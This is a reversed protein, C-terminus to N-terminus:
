VLQVLDNRKKWLQPFSVNSIILMIYGDSM